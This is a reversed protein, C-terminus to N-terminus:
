NEKAHNVGVGGGGGGGGGSWPWNLLTSTHDLVTVSPLLIALPRYPPYITTENYENLQFAGSSGLGEGLM